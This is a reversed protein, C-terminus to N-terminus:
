KYEYNIIKINKVTKSVRQLKPFILDNDKYIYYNKKTEKAVKYRINDPYKFILSKKPKFTLKKIIKLLNM